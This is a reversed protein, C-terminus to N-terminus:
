DSKLLLKYLAKSDGIKIKASGIVEQKDDDVTTALNDFLASSTKDKLIKMYLDCEGLNINLQAVAITQEKSAGNLTLQIDGPNIENGEGCVNLPARTTLYHYNDTDASLFGLSPIGEVLFVKSYHSQPIEVNLALFVVLLCVSFIVVSKMQIKRPIKGMVHRVKENKIEEQSYRM